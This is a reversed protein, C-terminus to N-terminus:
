EAPLSFTELVEWGIQRITAPVLNAIPRDDELRMAGLYTQDRLDHWWRSPSPDVHGGGEMNATGLVFDRRTFSDTEGRKSRASHDVPRVLVGNWWEDFSVRNDSGHYDLIPEYRQDEDDMVAVVLGLPMEFSPTVSLSHATDVFRLSDKLGLLGLISISRDTDHVLVRLSLAIRKGESEVGDDYRACSAAIFDIQERLNIRLREGSGRSSMM